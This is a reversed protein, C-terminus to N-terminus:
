GDFKYVWNRKVNDCVLLTRGVEMCQTLSHPQSEDYRRKIGNRSKEAKLLQFMASFRNAFNGGRQQIEDFTAAFRTFSMTSDGLGISLMRDLYVPYTQSLYYLDTENLYAAHDRPRISLTNTPSLARSSLESNPKNTQLHYRGFQCHIVLPLLQCRSSLPANETHHAQVATNQQKTTPIPTATDPLAQLTEGNLPPLSLGAKRAPAKLLLRQIKEANGRFEMFTPLAASKGRAKLECYLKELDSRAQEACAIAHTSVMFMCLLMLAIYAHKVYSLCQTNKQHTM